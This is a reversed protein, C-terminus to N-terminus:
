QGPEATRPSPAPSPMRADAVDAAARWAVPDHGLAALFPERDLNQVTVATAARATATRPVDRVLAIEGFGDGACRLDVAVGAREIRVEGHVLLV